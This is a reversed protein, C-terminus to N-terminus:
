ATAKELQKAAKSRAPRNTPVSSDQPPVSLAAIVTPPIPRFRRRYLAMQLDFKQVTNVISLYSTGDAHAVKVVDRETLQAPDFDSSFELEYGTQILVPLDTDASILAFKPRPTGQDTQM